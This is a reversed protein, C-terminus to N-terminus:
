GLPMELITYTKTIDANIHKLIRNMPGNSELIWSMEARHIGHAMANIMTRNYFVLDIGRQRYEPVVGMLAVRIVDIKKVRRMLRLWNFPLLHGNLGMLAQYIDPLALSFGVPEGDKEALFILDKLAFSEVRRFDEVMEEVKLPVFGWNGAWSRNFLDTVVASEEEVRSYDPYRFTIGGLALRESLRDVIKPFRISASDVEYAFFRMARRFGCNRLLEPYYDANYPM